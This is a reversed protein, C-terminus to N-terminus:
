QVVGHLKAIVSDSIQQATKRITKKEDGGAMVFKAAIVYPNLKIVAGPKDKSDAEQVAQYLPPLDVAGLS